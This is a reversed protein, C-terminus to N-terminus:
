SCEVYLLNLSYNLSWLKRVHVSKSMCVQAQCVYCCAALSVALLYCVCASSNLIFILSVQKRVYYLLFNCIKSMFHFSCDVFMVVYALVWSMATVMIIVMMGSQVTFEVFSARLGHVVM